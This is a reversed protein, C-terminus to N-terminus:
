ILSSSNQRIKFLWEANLLILQSSFSVALYCVFVIKLGFYSLSNFGISPGQHEIFRNMRYCALWVKGFM